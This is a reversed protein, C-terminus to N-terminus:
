QQLESPYRIKRASEYFNRLQSPSFGFATSVHGFIVSLVDDWTMDKSFRSIHMIQSRSCVTNHFCMGNSRAFDFYEDCEFFLTSHEANETEICLAYEKPMCGQLDFIKVLAMLSVIIEDVTLIGDYLVWDSEVTINKSRLISVQRDKLMERSYGLPCHIKSSLNNDLQLVISVTNGGPAIANHRFVLSNMGYQVNSLGLGDIHMVSQKLAEIDSYNAFNTKNVFQSRMLYVNILPSGLIRQTGQMIMPFAIERKCFEEVESTYNESKKYLLDITARDTKIPEKSSGNRVYVTGSAVYPPFRGTAIFVVLVGCKKNSPNKLFRSEFIPLPSVASKLLQSITQSYDARPSPVCTAIHTEDNIGIFLWGGDSNAFSTIIAPIKKKVADDFTEKYEITYGEDINILQLIHRFQLKDLYIPNGKSDSFPSYSKM